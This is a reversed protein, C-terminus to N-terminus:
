TAPKTAGSAIEDAASQGARTGSQWFTAKREDSAEGRRGLVLGM